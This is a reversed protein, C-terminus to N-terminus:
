SVRNHGTPPIESGSPTLCGGHVVRSLFNAVFDVFLAAPTRGRGIGLGLRGPIRYHAYPLVSRQGGSQLGRRLRKSWMVLEDVLQIGSSSRAVSLHCQPLLLNHLQTPFHHVRTPNPQLQTALVADVRDPQHVREAGHPNGAPLLLFM